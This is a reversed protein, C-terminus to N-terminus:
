RDVILAAYKWEDEYGATLEDDRTRDSMFKLEEHIKSLENMLESRETDSQFKMFNKFKKKMM